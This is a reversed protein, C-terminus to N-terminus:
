VCSSFLVVSFPLSEEASTSSVSPEIKSSGLYGGFGVIPGGTPVLSSAMSICFKQSFFFLILFHSLSVLFCIHLYNLSRLLANFRSSSARNKSRAADGKQKGM